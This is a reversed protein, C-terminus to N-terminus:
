DTNQIQLAAPHNITMRQEKKTKYIWGRAIIQQNILNKLPFSDFFPVDKKLIRLAFKVGSKSNLNLWISSRSEGIRDVTGSISHFGRASKKLSTVNIAQSYRHGWIGRQHKQAKREANQYCDLLQINPPIAVIFGMGNKILAATINKNDITFVHALYRKYRDRKSKGFVIKIQHHNKEIIQQLQNKAQQYFPEDNNGNRGREPTNIGILRLKRGDVLQITDGDYVKAVKVTEHRQNLSCNNAHLQTSFFTLAIFVFLTWRSAKQTVYSCHLM